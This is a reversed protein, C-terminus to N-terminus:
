VPNGVLGAMYLPLYVIGGDVKVDHASLLYPTSLWEGYKGRFKDLSKHALRRGCKVEIPIVNNKAVLKSRAALFDIEMSEARSGRENRSFFYLPAGTATRGNM